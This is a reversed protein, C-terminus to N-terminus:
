TIQSKTNKCLQTPRKKSFYDLPHRGRPCKYVPQGCAFVKMGQGHGGMCWEVPVTIWLTDVPCPLWQNYYMCYGVTICVESSSIWLNNVPCLWPVFLRLYVIPPAMMVHATMPYYEPASPFSVPTNAKPATSVRAIIQRPVSPSFPTLM